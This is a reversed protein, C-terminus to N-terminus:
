VNRVGFQGHMEISALDYARAADEASSFTGLYKTKRGLGINAQYNGTKPVFRVGRPLQRPKSRRNQRNQSYDAIRFNSRQNNLGDRDAHDIEFGEPTPNLVAHMFVTKQKGNEQRISRMAYWTECHRSKVRGAYWKHGGVLPFDADDIVAFKGQTLPIKLM